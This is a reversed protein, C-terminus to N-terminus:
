IPLMTHHHHKVRLNALDASPCNLLVHEEDQVYDDM